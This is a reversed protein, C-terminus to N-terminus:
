FISIVKPIRFSKGLGGGGGIKVSLKKEAPQLKSSMKKMLNKMTIEKVLISQHLTFLKVNNPFIMFWDTPDHIRHSIEFFVTGSIDHQIIPLAIVTGFSCVIL